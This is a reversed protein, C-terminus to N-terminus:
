TIRRPCYLFSITRTSLNFPQDMLTFTAPFSLNGKVATYGSETQGVVFAPLKATHCATLFFMDLM